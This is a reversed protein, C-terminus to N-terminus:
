VATNLDQAWRALRANSAKNFVRDTITGDFNIHRGASKACFKLARRASQALKTDDGQTLELLRQARRGGIVRPNAILVQCLNTDDGTLIALRSSSFGFTMKHCFHLSSLATQTQDRGTSVLIPCKPPLALFTHWKTPHCVTVGKILM